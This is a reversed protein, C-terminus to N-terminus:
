VPLVGTYRGGGTAKNKFKAPETSVQAKIIM